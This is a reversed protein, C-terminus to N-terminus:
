KEMLWVPNEGWLPKIKRCAVSIRWDYASHFLGGNWSAPFMCCARSDFGPGMFFWGAHDLTQVMSSCCIVIAHIVVYSSNCNCPNCFYTFYSRGCPTCEHCGCSVHGDLSLHHVSWCGVLFPHCVSWKLFSSDDSFIHEKCFVYKKLYWMMYWNTYMKVPQILRCCSTRLICVLFHEDHM